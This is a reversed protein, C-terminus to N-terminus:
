TMLSDLDNWVNPCRILMESMWEDSGYVRVEFWKGVNSMENSCMM